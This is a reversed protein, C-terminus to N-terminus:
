PHQQAIRATSFPKLRKAVGEFKALEELRRKNVNPVWQWYLELGKTASATVIPEPVLHERKLAYEIHRNKAAISSASVGELRM